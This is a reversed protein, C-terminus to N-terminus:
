PLLSRHPSCESCPVPARRAALTPEICRRQSQLRDVSEAIGAAVCHDARAAEEPVERRMFVEAHRFFSVRQLKTRLREVNEIVGFESYVVRIIGAARAVVDDTAVRPRCVGSAVFTTSHIAHGASGKQVRHIRM